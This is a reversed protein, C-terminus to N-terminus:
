GNLDGLICLRYSNGVRDLTRDMDNWFREKELMEKMPAAGWWWVFKLGQFSSILGSFELALVGM